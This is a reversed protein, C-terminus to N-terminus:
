KEVAIRPHWQKSKALCTSECCKAPIDTRECIKNILTSYNEGKYARLHANMRRYIDDINIVFQQAQIPHIALGQCSRCRAFCAPRRASFTMRRALVSTM